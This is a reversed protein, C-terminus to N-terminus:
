VVVIVVNEGDIFQLCCSNDLYQYHTFLSTDFRIVKM